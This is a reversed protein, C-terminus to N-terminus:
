GLENIVADVRKEYELYDKRTAEFGEVDRGIAALEGEVRAHFVAEDYGEARCRADIVAVERERDTLPVAIDKVMGDADGIPGTVSQSPMGDPSQPLDVVGAPRMCERWAQTAEQVGADGDVADWGAAEVTSLFRAPVDGLREDTARGCAIMADQMETTIEVDEAIVPDAWLPSRLSLYGWEQAIQEDFRLNRSREEYLPSGSGPEVPRYEVVDQLCQQALLDRAFLDRPDNYQPVLEYVPTLTATSEDYGYRAVDGGREPGDAAGAASCGALAATVLLGALLAGPRPARPLLRM